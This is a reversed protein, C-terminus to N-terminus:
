CTMRIMKHKALMCDVTLTHISIETKLTKTGRTTKVDGM